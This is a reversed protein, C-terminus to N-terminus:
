GRRKETEFTQRDIQKFRICDGVDFLFPHDDDQRLIATPSRGIIWWGTPMDLTTVLCQPGAIIVSGAPVDRVAAPKRPLQIHEPVGALYAYGPAFGYMSVSYDGSLHAAIVEDRSLGTMDAVELLDPAFADDYCVLVDRVAGAQFVAGSHMLLRDIALEVAAHDTVLPDFGVLLSTYAPVAETFGAIPHSSLAAGLQRVRDQVNREIVDGFEVLVAHDAVPHVRPFRDSAATM